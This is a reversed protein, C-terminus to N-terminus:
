ETESDRNRRLYETSVALLSLLVSVAGFGPGSAGSTPTAEEGSTPTAEEGSTAIPEEGVTTTLSESPTDTPTPESEIAFGYVSSGSTAILRTDNLNPSLSEDGTFEAEWTPTGDRDFARIGTDATYFTDNVERVMPFPTDLPHDWLISGDRISVAWIHDKAVPVALGDDILYLFLVDETLSQSWREEGTGPDFGTITGIDTALIVGGDPGGPVFHRPYTSREKRWRPTGDRLDLALTEAPDASTIFCYPWSPRVTLNLGDPPIKGYRWLQEGTEVDYAAFERDGRLVLNGDVLTVPQKMTRPEPTWAIEREGLDVVTAGGFESGFAAYGGDYVSQEGFEGTISWQETGSRPDLGTFTEDNHHYVVGEHFRISPPYDIPRKWLQDGTEVDFAYLYRDDVALFDSFVVAVGRDDFIAVRPDLETDVSIEWIPEQRSGDGTSGKVKDLGGSALATLVGIQLVNRRSLAGVSDFLVRGSQSM